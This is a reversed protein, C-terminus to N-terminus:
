GIAMHSRETTIANSPGAEADVAGALLMLEVLRRTAVETVPTHEHTPARSPRQATHQHNM